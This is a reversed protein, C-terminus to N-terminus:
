LAAKGDDAMGGNRRWSSFPARTEREGGFVQNRIIDCTAHLDGASAIYAALGPMSCALLSKSVDSM